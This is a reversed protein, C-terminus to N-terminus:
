RKIKPEDSKPNSVLNMKMCTCIRMIIAYLTLTCLPLIVSIVAWAQMVQILFKQVLM